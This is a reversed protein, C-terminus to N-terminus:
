IGAKDLVDDLSEFGEDELEVAALFLAFTEEIYTDLQPTREIIEESLAFALPLGLDNYTIFDEFDKEWRYNMWLDALIQAKDLFQTEM